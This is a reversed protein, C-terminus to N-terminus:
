GSADSGVLVSMKIHPRGANFRIILNDKAESM